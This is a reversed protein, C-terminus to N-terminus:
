IGEPADEFTTRDKEYLNCIVDRMLFLPTLSARDCKKPKPSDLGDCACWLM